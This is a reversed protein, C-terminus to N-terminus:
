DKFKDSKHKTSLSFFRIGVVDVYPLESEYYKMFLLIYIYLLNTYTYIYIYYIYIYIYISYSM